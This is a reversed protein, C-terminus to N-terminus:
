ENNAEVKILESPLIEEFKISLEDYDGLYETNLEPKYKLIYFVEFIHIDSLTKTYSIRFYKANKEKVSSHVRSSLDKSKGIYILKKNEDFLFYIGFKNINNQIFIKYEESYTINDSLISKAKSSEKFIIIKYFYTHESINNDIIEKEFIDFNQLIDDLNEVDIFKLYYTIYDLFNFVKKKILYKNYCIKNYINNFSTETIGYDDFMTRENIIKKCLYYFHRSSKIKYM